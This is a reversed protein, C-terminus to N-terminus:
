HGVKIHWRKRALAKIQTMDWSQEENWSGALASEKRWYTITWAISDRGGVHSIWISNQFVLRSRVCGSVALKQPTFCYTPARPRKKKREKQREIFVYNLFHALMLPLAYMSLFIDGWPLFNITPFCFLFLFCWNEYIFCLCACYISLNAWVHSSCKM